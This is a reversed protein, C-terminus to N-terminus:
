LVPLFARSIMRFAARALNASFPKLPARARRAANGGAGAQVLLEDIIIEAALVVKVADRKLFGIGLYAQAFFPRSRRDSGGCSAM